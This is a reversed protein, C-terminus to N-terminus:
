KQRGLTMWFFKFMLKMTNTIEPSKIIVGFLENEKFSIFATKQGYISIEISFPYKKKDILRIESNSKNDIKQWSKSVKSDPAIVQAFINYKVRDKVFQNALRDLIENHMKSFAVVSFLPKKEKIIDEYISYLGDVGEFVQITPRKKATKSLSKLQPLIEGFLESQKELLKKISEPETAIFLTKKGKGTISVLKKTKLSKMIEYVTTRKVESRTAITAVTAPGLELNALYVKAEKKNLGIQELYENLLM